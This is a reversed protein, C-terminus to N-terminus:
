SLEDLLAGIRTRDTTSPTFAVLKQETVDPVAAGCQPCTVTLPTM